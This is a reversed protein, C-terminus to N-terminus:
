ADVDAFAGNLLVHPMSAGWSLSSLVPGSEQVVMRLIHPGTIEQLDGVEEKAGQKSEEDDFQVRAFHDMYTDSARRGIGPGCLLQSLCGGISLRWLIEKTITVAFKPGTERVYGCGATDLYEFGGIVCWPGIGDTFPKQAAHTVLTEIVQEDQLLIMQMTDQTGIDLVEVLGPRRLSDPLLDWVPRPLRNRQIVLSALDEGQWDQTSQM